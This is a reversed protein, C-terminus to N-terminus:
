AEDPEVKPRTPPEQPVPTLPPATAQADAEFRAWGRAVFSEAERVQDAPVRQGFTVEVSMFTGTDSGDEGVLPQTLDDFTVHLRDGYLELQQEYVPGDWVLVKM